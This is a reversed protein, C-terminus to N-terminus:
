DHPIGCYDLVSRWFGHHPENWWETVADMFRKYQRGTLHVVTGNKMHLELHKSSEKAVVAADSASYVPEATSGISYSVIHRGDSNEHQMEILNFFSHMLKVAEDNWLESLDINDADFQDFNM